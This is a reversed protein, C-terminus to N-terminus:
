KAGPHRFESEWEMKSTNWRRVPSLPRERSGPPDYEHNGSGDGSAAWSMAVDDPWRYSANCAGSFIMRRAGMDQTTENIVIPEKQGIVYFKGLLHIGHQNLYRVNLVQSGEQDTVTLTSRDPRSKTLINNPNIVFYNRVIRAIIKGDSGRIDLDLAIRGRSGQEVILIPTPIRRDQPNLAGWMSVKKGAVLRSNGLYLAIANDPLPFKTSCAPDPDSAPYLWDALRDLEFDNQLVRTWACLIASVALIVLVPLTCWMRWRREDQSTPQTPTPNNKTARRIKPRKKELL